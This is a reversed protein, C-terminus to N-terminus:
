SQRIDLINLSHRGKLHKMDPGHLTSYFSRVFGVVTTKLFCRQKHYLVGAAQWLLLCGPLRISTQLSSYLVLGSYFKWTNSYLAFGWCTPEFALSPHCSVLNELLFLDKSCKSDVRKKSLIAWRSPSFELGRM